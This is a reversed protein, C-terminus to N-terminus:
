MGICAAHVAAFQGEVKISYRLPKMTATPDGIGNLNLAHVERLSRTLLALGGTPAIYARLATHCAGNVTKAMAQADREARAAATQFRAYAANYCAIESAEPQMVEQCRVQADDFRTFTAAVAVNDRTARARNRASLVLGSPDFNPSTSTPATWPPPAPKDSASGATALRSGVVVALVVGLFILGLRFM